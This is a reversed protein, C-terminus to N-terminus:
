LAGSGSPLEKGSGLRLESFGKLLPGSVELVKKSDLLRVVDPLPETEIGLLEPGRVLEIVHSSEGLPIACSATCFKYRSRLAPLVANTIDALFALPSLLVTEEYTCNM